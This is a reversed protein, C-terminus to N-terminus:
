RFVDVVVSLFSGGSLQPKQEVKCNRTVKATLRLVPLLSAPKSILLNSVVTSNATSLYLCNTIEELGQAGSPHSSILILVNLFLSIARNLDAEEKKDDNSNSRNVTSCLAAILRGTLNNQAFHFFSDSFRTACVEDDSMYATEALNNLMELYVLFNERLPPAESRFFESVQSIINADLAAFLLERTNGNNSSGLLAAAPTLMNQNLLIGLTM